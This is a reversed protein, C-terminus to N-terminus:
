SGCEGGIRCAGGVIESTAKSEQVMKKALEINEPTLPIAELPEQGRSGARYVTIGKLYPAYKLAMKSVERSSADNPLNITKSIANDIYRQITAQVAMHEDPTIDYSGVIHNAPVGQELAEKFLADLVIEERWTNGERFRRKYMPAFIPEIGTSTGHVMSVTGTPAATLILANRIGNQRIYMRIRAPLTKAFEEKLFKDADFMPFSGKEQALRMSEKYAEDRITSYLRDLFELCKEGYRIGLKILMHHLGLTGLGIRRTREGSIKCEPIPYHNVTLVDDLFRVGVRVANALRPWNVDKGDDTIMNSLNVHGLCCNAYSELPIEGCPNTQNM